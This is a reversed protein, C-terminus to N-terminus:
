SAATTPNPSTFFARIDIAAAAPAGSTPLGKNSVAQLGLVCNDIVFLRSDSNLLRYLNALQKQTGTVNLGLSLQSPGSTTASPAATASGFGSPAPSTVGNLKAGSAGVAAALVKELSDLDPGPPLLRELKKLAVRQMPLEKESRVLGAYRANLALVASQATQEKARLSSIHSAESRYFGEYWGAMMVFILLLAGIVIRRM